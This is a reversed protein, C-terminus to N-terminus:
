QLTIKKLNSIFNTIKENAELFVSKSNFANLEFGDQEDIEGKEIRLIVQRLNKLIKLNISNQMYIALEDGLSEILIYIEQSSNKNLFAETQFFDEEEFCSIESSEIHSFGAEALLNEVIERKFRLNAM